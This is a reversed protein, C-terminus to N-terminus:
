YNECQKEKGQPMSGCTHYEMAKMSNFMLKCIECQHDRIPGFMSTKVIKFHNEKVHKNMDILSEHIEGCVYCQWPGAFSSSKSKKSPSSKVSIEESKPEPEIEDNVNIILAWHKFVM